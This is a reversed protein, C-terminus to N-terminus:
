TIVSQEGRSKGNAAARCDLGVFSLDSPDMVFRVERTFSGIELDCRGDFGVVYWVDHRSDKSLLERRGNRLWHPREVSGSEDDCVADVRGGTGHGAGVLVLVVGSVGVRGSGLLVV